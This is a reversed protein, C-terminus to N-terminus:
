APPAYTPALDGFIGLMHLPPHMDRCGLFGAFWCKAGRRGEAMTLPRATRDAVVISSVKAENAKRAPPKMKKPKPVSLGLGAPEAAAANLGDKCKQEVFKFYLTLWKQSETIDLAWQKWDEAPM